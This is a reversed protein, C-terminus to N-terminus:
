TAQLPRAKEGRGVSRIPQRSAMEVGARAVARARGESLNSTIPRKAMATPTVPHSAAHFNSTCRERQTGLRGTREAIGPNFRRATRDRVSIDQPLTVILATVLTTFSSTPIWSVAPEAEQKDLRIAMALAWAGGRLRVGALAGQTRRNGTV